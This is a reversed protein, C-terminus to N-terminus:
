GAWNAMATCIDESWPGDVWLSPDTWAIAGSMVNQVIYADHESLGDLRHDTLEASPPEAITGQFEATMEIDSIQQSQALGTVAEAFSNTFEFADEPTISETEDPQNYFVPVDTTVAATLEFEDTEM